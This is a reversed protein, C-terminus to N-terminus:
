FFDIRYYLDVGVAAGRQAEIEWNKSVRYRMKVVQQDDFLSYGYSIYLKPTLYKGITVLSRSFDGEQSEIDVRDIGMLGKLRDVPGSSEGGLLAEAGAVLLSLNASQRDFPRGEMLYSLIDEDRMAPVSYLRVNPRKLTGIVLVGAKVSNGGGFGERRLALVDLAPNDAPGGTFLLRGRDIGLNLGYGRYTGERVRIEGRAAWEEPRLGGGTVELDGGLRAELGGTKALVEDGLVIRVRIDPFLSPPGPPPQDLFVVDPSPRTVGTSAPAQIFVAPLVVEGRVTLHKGKGEIELRPSAQIRLDPLYLVQFRDGRVRGEYSEVGWNKLRVVGSAELGGPGSRATLSEIQIRDELFLFRGAIGELRIGTEPLLVGAEALDIKGSWQPRRWSGGAAFDAELKGRSEQLTGPFFASLLGMEEARGRFAARVDGGPDFRPPLRAPLPLRFDGKFSGHAGLALFVEGQLSEGRWSFAAKGREIEAAVLGNETRWGAKGGALKLEGTTELRFDPFWSGEIRGAARGELFLRDPALPRLLAAELGSWNMKLRGRDPFSFGAPEASLLKGELKGHDALELTWSSLLGEPGWELAASGSSIQFAFLDSGPGSRRIAGGPYFRLAAEAIGFTGRLRPRAWTGGAAIELEIDGGSRSITEPFFAALLGKDRFRGNLSAELRGEPRFSPFGNLVLPAEFTGKLGGREEFTMSLNGRLRDERWTLDLGAEKVALSPAKEGRRWIIETRSARLEGAAELRFGPSWEGSVRGSSRGKLLLGPPLVPAFLAHDIGGWEAEIKGTPPVALSFAGPSSFRLDLRGDGELGLALSALFGKNGWRGSAKGSLIEARLGQRVLFGAMGAEGRVELGGDRWDAALFGASRGGLSAEGGSPKLRELDLNEWSARAFGSLPNLALDAGGRLREGRANALILPGLFFNQASVRIKVPTQLHWTGRPEEASVKGITGEWTEKEYKGTLEGLIEGGAFRIRVGARHKGSDGSAQLTLSPFFVPGARVEALRGELSFGTEQGPAPEDLRFEFSLDKARAGKLFLDRGQGHLRGSWLNDRFRVWGSTRVGGRAEPVFAPLDVEAAEINLKERLVGRAKLSFGEGRLHLRSIEWLDKELRAELQGTFARNKLRSEAFETKLAAEALRNGDLSARGEMKLNVEGTWAPDIRGPNIRSGQLRGSLAPRKAFSLDLLGEVGGELWSAKLNAIKVGRTNGRFDASVEARTWDKARNSIRLRGRFDGPDGRGELEGSLNTEIGLQPALDLGAAVLRGELVPRHGFIWSGDSRLNGKRGAPVLLLNKWSLAAPTLALESELSFVEEEQKIGRVRAAGGAAGRGEAPELVVRAELRDVGRTEGAPRANVELHLSPREFSMRLSGEASGWAGAASGPAISLFRGDWVARAALGGLRFPDGGSPHWVADRVLFSEIRADIGSLWLPAAPWRPFFPTGAKSPVTRIEVASLSLESVALTRHWLKEPEWQLLIRDARIEGGPWRINVSQLDLRDRLRGQIRDAHIKVPSFASLTKLLLRTGEASHWAWVVLAAASLSLLAALGLVIRLTKKKSKV